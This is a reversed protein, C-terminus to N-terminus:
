ELIRGDGSVCFTVFSTTVAVGGDKGFTPGVGVVPKSVIHGGKRSCEQAARTGAWISLALLLALVGIGVVVPISEKVITM